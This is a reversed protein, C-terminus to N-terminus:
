NSKVIKKLDRIGKECIKRSKWSLKIKSCDVEECKILTIVEVCCYSKRLLQKKLADAKKILEKKLATLEKCCNNKWFLEKNQTFSRALLWWKLIPLEKPYNSKPLAVKKAFFRKSNKSSDVEACCWSNWFLYIKSYLLNKM